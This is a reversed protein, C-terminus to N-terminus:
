SVAKRCSDRQIIKSVLEESGDAQLVALEALPVDCRYAAYGFSDFEVDGVTIRCNDGEQVARITWATDGCERLFAIESASDCSKVIEKACGADICSAEALIASRVAAPDVHPVPILSAAILSVVAALGIAM